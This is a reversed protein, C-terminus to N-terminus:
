RAGSSMLTPIWWRLEFTSASTNNRFRYRIKREYDSTFPLFYYTWSATLTQAGILTWSTGEDTSYYVSVTNGKAEFAIGSHRAREKPSKVTFDKSDWYADIATSGDDTASQDYDNIKSTGGGLVYFRDYPIACFGTLDYKYWTPDKDPLGGYKIVYVLDPTATSTPVFLWAEKQGKCNVFFSNGYYTKNINSFLDANIPAGVPRVFTGGFYEWVNLDDALFYHRDGINAIANQAGLGLNFILPDFRFIATGGIYVMKIIENECYIIADYALEEVGVIRGGKRGLLLNTGSDGGSFDEIDGANSWQVKRDAQVWSGNKEGVDFLVLHSKIYRVVRSRLEDSNTTLDDITSGDWIAARVKNDCLIVVETGDSKVAPCSSLQSYTTQSEQEGLTWKSTSTDYFYYSTNTADQFLIAMDDEWDFPTQVIGQVRGSLNGGTTIVISFAAHGTRKKLVGQDIRMNQMASANRVDLDRPSIRYDLGRTPVTILTEEQGQEDERRPM